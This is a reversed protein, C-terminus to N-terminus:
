RGDLRRVEREMAEGLLRAGATRVPKPPASRLWSQRVIEDLPDPVQSM